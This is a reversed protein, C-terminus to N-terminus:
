NRRYIKVSERANYVSFTKVSTQHPLLASPAEKKEPSSLEICWHANSYAKSAQDFVPSVPSLFTATCPMNSGIAYEGRKSIGAFYKAATHMSCKSASMQLILWLSSVVMIAEAHWKKFWAIYILCLAGMLILGILIWNALNALELHKWGSKQVVIWWLVLPLAWVVNKIGSKSEVFQIGYALVVGMMAHAIIGHWLKENYVLQGNLTSWELWASPWCSNFVSLTLVSLLLSTQWRKIKTEVLPENFAFPLLLLPFVFRRPSFDSCLAILFCVLLLTSYSYRNVTTKGTLFRLLLVAILISSVPDNIFPKEILNILRLFIGAPHLLQQWTYYDGVFQTQYTEFFDANPLYYAVWMPAIVLTAGASFMLGRRIFQRSDLGLLVLGIALFHYAFSGKVFLALAAIFGALILNLKGEKRGIEFSALGLCSMLMEPHGLRSWDFLLPLCLLMLLTTRLRARSNIEKTKFLYKYLLALVLLSFPILSVLRLTFFSIGLTSFVLYHWVVTFPGAALAGAIGDSTWRDYLIKQRANEAWWAEDHIDETTKLVSPDAAINYFHLGLLLFVSIIFLVNEWKTNKFLKHTITMFALLRFYPNIIFIL